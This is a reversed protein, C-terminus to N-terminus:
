DTGPAPDDRTWTETRGFLSVGLYGRIELTNPDLLKVTCRYTRGSNPDYIRGNTWRGSGDYEFGTMITLGDLKRTRLSPDPNRDDFERESPSGPPAGAIRGELGDGVREVRIWGDQEQTLWRGEVAALDGYAWGALFLMAFSALRATHIM